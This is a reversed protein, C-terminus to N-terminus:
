VKVTTSSKLVRNRITSTPLAKCCRLLEDSAEFFRQMAGLSTDFYTALQAATWGKARLITALLRADAPPLAVAASNPKVKRARAKMENQHIQLRITTKM